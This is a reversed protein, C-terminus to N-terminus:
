VFDSMVYNCIPIGRRTLRVHDGELTLLGRSLHTDLVPGYVDWARVGFASEFGSLSVGELLRLGLFWYEAMEDERSLPTVDQHLLSTEGQWALYAELDPTNSFRTHRILSAAGLGLGLYDRRRWYGINHDCAMGPRAYNSIEYWEYRYRSLIRATDMYIGEQTDEDPMVPHSDALPTGEELILTYASIHEPGLGAAKRLNDAWSQRTQGPLASILDVNINAFGAERAQYFGTLFDEWTHIRGLLRLEERDPSQLGLSLRNFGAQRLTTLKQLSLTGPNAEVSIEAEEELLAAERIAELLCALDEGELVTPTGGGFYVSSVREGRIEPAMRIERLLTKIYARITEQSAPGSLFDCYACKRVCFPIHVYIEM